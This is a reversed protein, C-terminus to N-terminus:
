GTLEGVITDKLYKNYSDIPSISIWYKEGLAHCLMQTKNLAPTHIAANANYEIVTILGPIVRDNTHNMVLATFDGRTLESAQVIDLQSTEESYVLINWSTPVEVAYGLISLVLTPTHIEENILYKSLKYDKSELDLIWFYDSVIPADIRDIIIPTSNEDSIIM